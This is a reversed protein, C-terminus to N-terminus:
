KINLGSGCDRFTKECDLVLLDQVM